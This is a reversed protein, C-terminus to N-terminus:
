RSYSSSSAPHDKSSQDKSKRSRNQIRVWPSECGARRDWSWCRPRMEGTVCFAFSSTVRSASSDCHRLPSSSKVPDFITDIEIENRLPRTHVTADECRQETEHTVILFCFTLYFMHTFLLYLLYLLIYHFICIYLLAIVFSYSVQIIKLPETQLLIRRYFRCSVHM